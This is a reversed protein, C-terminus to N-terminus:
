ERALQILSRVEAAHAVQWEHIIDYVELMGPPPDGHTRREEDIASTAAAHLAQMYGTPSIDSKWGPFM